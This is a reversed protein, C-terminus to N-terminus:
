KWSSNNDDDLQSLLRNYKALIAGRKSYCDDRKEMTKLQYDRLEELSSDICLKWSDNIRSDEKLMELKDIFKGILLLAADFANINILENCAHIVQCYIHGDLCIIGLRYPNEKSAGSKFQYNEIFDIPNNMFIGLTGEEAIMMDDLASIFQEIAMDDRNM